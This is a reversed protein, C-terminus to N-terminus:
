GGNTTNHTVFPMYLAGGGERVVVDVISLPQNTGDGTVVFTRIASYGLVFEGTSLLDPECNSNAPSVTWNYVDADLSITRADLFKINELGPVVTNDINCIDVATQDVDVNFPAAHVVTVTAQTGPLPPVTGNPVSQASSATPSALFALGLILLTLAAVLVSSRHRRVFQKCHKM